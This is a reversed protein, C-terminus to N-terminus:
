DSQSGIISHSMPIPSSASTAFCSCVQNIPMSWPADRIGPCFLVGITMQRESRPGGCVERRNGVRDRRDRDSGREKRGQGRGAAKGLCASKPPNKEMAEGKEGMEGGRPAVGPPLRRQSLLGSFNAPETTAIVKYLDTGYPQTM